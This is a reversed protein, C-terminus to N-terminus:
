GSAARDSRYAPNEILGVVAFRYLYRQVREVTWQLKRALEKVTSQGDIADYLAWEPSTLDSQVLPAGELLETKVAVFNHDPIYQEILQLSTVRRAAYLLV